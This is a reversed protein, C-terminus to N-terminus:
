SANATREGLWFCLGDPAVVYFVRFSSGDPNAETDIPGINQLGGAIFEDRLADVDDVHFAVGDQTPDGGNEAVAMSVGDRQLVVRRHPDNERSTVHFGMFQQYFAASADADAVPLAMADGQYGFARLLRAPM